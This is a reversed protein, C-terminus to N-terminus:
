PAASVVSSPECRSDSADSGSASVLASPWYARSAASGARGDAVGPEASSRTITHAPGDPWVLQSGTRVSM